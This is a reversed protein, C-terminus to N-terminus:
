EYRSSLFSRYAPRYFRAASARRQLIWQPLRNEFQQLEPSTGNLPLGSWEALYSNTNVEKLNDPQIGSIGMLWGEQGKVKYKFFYVYGTARRTVVHQKGVLQVESERGEIGRDSLVSRAMAEQNRFEAPFLDVKGAQVLDNYLRARHRDDAALAHLVSDPVSRNNRILVLAAAHRIGPSKIQLLQNFWRAVGPRDYFPALWKAYEDLRPASARPERLGFAQIEDPPLVDEDDNNKEETLQQKKLLIQADSFLGTFYGGYAAAPLRSSDAMEAMLQLIPPKFGEVPILQLIDPFLSIALVSDEGIRDFFERLQTANEFVPPAELLWKKVLAYAGKNDLRVMAQLAANQFATTDGSSEYLQKVYEVVPDLCCTDRFRGLSQILESKREIYNKSGPKLDTIIKRLAPLDAPTFLIHHLAERAIHREASDKSHYRSFFLASKSAFVTYGNTEVKPTFSSFFERLFESEEGDKDTLATIKYITNGKVVALGIVKRSSNTDLLTYRYGCVSDGSRFYEKKDLIFEAKLRKWHMENEWFVSTDNRYFYEPLTATIVHISEGTTDNYFYAHRVKTESVYGAESERMLMPFFIGAETLPRLTEPVDPYVPTRVAFHRATDAYWQPQGYHFPTLHFSGLFRAIEANDKKGAALVLYYEPGRIVAKAKLRGGTATSFELDLCDRGDLQGSKRSLEKVIMKSGKLSEEILHLDVTDEELFHTNSVNDKLVLYAEGTASVTEYQWVPKSMGGFGSYSVVPSAPFSAEFGGQPPSYNAWQYAPEKLQISAFFDDAEKGTVYEEKGSMKFILIETPGALIMYRQLDGGRSKNVIEFGNYGNRKIEMKSVIKGPINDYLLSDITKLVVEPSQGTLGSHTKVRTLMYYSGNAMDAFQWSPNASEERRYWQGPLNCRIMGDDTMVTRNSVPVHLRDIKERDEADQDAMKVPRLTYGKKRLIEIVGRGGPLHAAGVAVFLSKHRLISDISNAQIVNRDYLFKETFAKSSSLLQDLSDMLSLDGRRYAEQMKTAITYATEGEPFTKREIKEKMQAEAAEISMKESQLYNEVGAGEKGLRRGTQYIYLDLYTDEQFNALPTVTRYLLGNMEFPEERLAAILQDSYNNQRLDNESIYDADTAAYGYFHQVRQAEELRFMDPQWEDPDVELAVVDVSRIAMYFSDSLHFVEKNSIHMSGFLYSPKQLGNGSIEWLISPYASQSHGFFPLGSLLTFTLAYLRSM